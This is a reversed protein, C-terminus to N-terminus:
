MYARESISSLAFSHMKMRTHAITFQYNQCSLVRTLVIELVPPEGWLQIESARRSVIWFPAQIAEQLAFGVLTDLDVDNHILLNDDRHIHGGLMGFGSQFCQMGVNCAHAVRIVNARFTHSHACVGLIILMQGRDLYHQINTEDRFLLRWVGKARNQKEKHISRCEKLQHYDIIMTGADTAQIEAESSPVSM